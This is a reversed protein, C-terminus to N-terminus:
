DSRVGNVSHIIYYIVSWNDYVAICIDNSTHLLNEVVEACVTARGAHTGKTPDFLFCFFHSFCLQAAAPAPKAGRQRFRWLAFFLGYSFFIYPDHFSLFAGFRATSWGHCRCVIAHDRERARAANPQKVRKKWRRYVLSPTTTEAPLPKKRTIYKM